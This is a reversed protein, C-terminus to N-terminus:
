RYPKEIEEDLIQDETDGCFKCTGNEDVAKHSCTEPADERFFKGCLRCAADLADCLFTKGCHACTIEPHRGEVYKTMGGQAYYTPRPNRALEASETTSGILEQGRLATSLTTNPPTDKIAELRLEEELQSQELEYRPQTYRKAFQLMEILPDIENHYIGVQEVDDEDLLDTITITVMPNDTHLTVSLTKESVFKIFLESM